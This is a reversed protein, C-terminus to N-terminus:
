GDNKSIAHQRTAPTMWENYDLNHAMTAKLEECMREVQKQSNRLSATENLLLWGATHPLTGLLDHLCHESRAANSALGVRRLFEQRIDLFLQSTYPGLELIVRWTMYNILHRRIVPQHFLHSLYQLYEKSWLVVEPASRNTGSLRETVKNIIETFPTMVTENLASNETVVGSWLFSKESYVAEVTMALNEEFEVIERAVTSLRVDTRFFRAVLVIFDHYHDLVVGKDPYDFRLLGEPLGFRPSDIMKDMLSVLRAKLDILFSRPKEKAKPRLTSMPWAMPGIPFVHQKEETKPLLRPPPRQRLTSTPRPMTGIPLARQKEETKPLLRAPPRQRLTSTPRPMTGIPLARQKEETKPLLRLPPRQRLTSTPRPM